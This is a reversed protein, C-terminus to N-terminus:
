DGQRNYWCMRTLVRVRAKLGKSIKVPYYFTLHGIRVSQAYSQNVCELINDDDICSMLGKVYESKPVALNMHQRMRKEIDKPPQGTIAWSIAESGFISNNSKDVLHNAQKSITVCAEYKNGHCAKVHKSIGAELDKYETLKREKRM